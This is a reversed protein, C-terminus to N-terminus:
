DKKIHHQIYAFMARMGQPLAYGKKDLAYFDLHFWLPAASAVSNSQKYVVSTEWPSIFESLYLAATIAGGAPTASSNVLDAINSSRMNQRLPEWLPLPWMPDNGGFTDMAPNHSMEFAKILEQHDNCFVAPMENGVAVRAAGTLTAFDIILRKKTPKYAPDSLGEGAAVLCDALILRGEADTNTIESTKGNRARIVDGPRLSCGSISNEAIPILVRLQCPLEHHMILSSLALAQAAGAMDKKMTLMGNGTKINLGGSDFVIGKGVLVIEPLVADLTQGKPRWRFDVVRPARTASAGMGVAAVQPFGLNEASGCLEEVGVHVAVDMNSVKGPKDEYSKALNVAITSLEQPGMSLAPADVLSQMLYYARSIGLCDHKSANLPWQLTVKDGTHGEAKAKKFIDFKYSHQAFTFCIRNSVDVSLPQKGMSLADQFDYCGGKKMEQFAPQFDMDSITRDDFFMVSSYPTTGQPLPIKLLKNGPYVNLPTGLDELTQLTSTQLFTNKFEDFKSKPCLYINEVKKPQPSRDVFLSNVSEFSRSLYDYQLAPVPAPSNYLYRSSGHGRTCGTVLGSRIQRLHIAKTISKM